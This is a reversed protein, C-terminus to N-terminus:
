VRCARLAAFRFKDCLMWTPAYRSRFLRMLFQKGGKSVDVKYGELWRNYTLLARVRAVM